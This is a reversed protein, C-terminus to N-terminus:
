VFSNGGSEDRLKQKSFIAGWLQSSFSSFMLVIYALVCRTSEHYPQVLLEPIHRVCILMAVSAGVQIYLCLPATLKCFQLCGRKDNSVALRIAAVEWVPTGSLSSSTVKCIASLSLKEKLLACPENRWQFGRRCIRGKEEMGRLNGGCFNRQRPNPQCPQKSPCWRTHGTQEATTAQTSGRVQQSMCPLRFSPSIRFASLLTEGIHKKWRQSPHLPGQQQRQKRQLLPLSGQREWGGTQSFRLSTQGTNSFGHSHSLTVGTGLRPGAVSANVEAAYIFASCHNWM